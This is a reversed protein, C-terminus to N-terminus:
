TQNLYIYLVWGLVASITIVILSILIVKTEGFEGFAEIVGYISLNIIGYAFFASVLMGLIVRM